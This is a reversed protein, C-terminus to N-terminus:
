RLLLVLGLASLAAGGAIYLPVKALKLRAMSAEVAGILVGVLALAVVLSGLRLEASLAAVPWVIRALLVALVSLKVASAYLIVGLDPGSHDLVMVEHIMTLELHTTPDDVPSRSCEALLLIFWGAAVLSLAPAAAPWHDLLPAGVVGSLSLQHTVISLAALCVFFAFEVLAAFTVERSAGMAEFSSGTDIAGLVLVFRALALTSVFAVVDGPFAFLSTRGDLPMLLAAAVVGALAVIPV